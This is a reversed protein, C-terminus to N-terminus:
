DEVEIGLAAALIQADSRFMNQAALEWGWRCPGQWYLNYMTNQAALEWGWRCPGQWYLNYMTRGLVADDVAAIRWKKKEDKKVLGTSDFGEILAKVRDYYNIADSLSSYRKKAVNDDCERMTGRLYVSMEYLTPDIHSCLELGHAVHMPNLFGHHGRLWEPMALVQMSVTCDDLDLQVKVRGCKSTIPEARKRSLTTSDFSEVLDIVHQCYNAAEKVTDLRREAMEGGRRDRRDGLYVTTASLRPVDWNCLAFGDHTHLPNGYGCYDPLHEPRREVQMMVETDHLNLGIQVEGCKSVIKM